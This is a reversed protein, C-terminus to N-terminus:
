RSRMIEQCGKAFAIPMNQLVKMAENVVDGVGDNFTYCNDFVLLFDAYLNAAADSGDGYEGRGIKWLMTSFDMPSTIHESYGAVLDDTVPEKFIDYEDARSFLTLLM